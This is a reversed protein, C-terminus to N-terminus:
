HTLTHTRTHAGYAIHLGGWVVTVACLGVVQVFLAGSVPLGRGESRCVDVHCVKEHYEPTYMKCKKAMKYPVPVELLNLDISALFDDASFLDNDWVQMSLVPPVKIEEKELALLSRKKHFQHRPPADLFTSLPAALLFPFPNSALVLSPHHM